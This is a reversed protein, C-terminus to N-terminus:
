SHALLLQQGLDGFGARDFCTKHRWYLRANQESGTLSTVWAGLRECLSWIGVAISIM